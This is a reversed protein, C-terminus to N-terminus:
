VAGGTREALYIAEAETNDRGLAENRTPYRGFREIVEQHGKAADLNVELGLSTFLRMSEQHILASESHMYPMYFFQRQDNTLAKDIGQAVAEQVLALAMTDQAFAKSSGRHIQRSFQDLIIIEALRGEATERWAFLEGQSAARHLDGYRDIIEQDFDLNTNWWDKPGHDEFWFKIIEAPTIM